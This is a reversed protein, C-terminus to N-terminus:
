AAFRLILSTEAPEAQLRHGATAALDRAYRAIAAAPEDPVAGDDLAQAVDDPWRLTTGEARILWSSGDKNLSLSGGRPM